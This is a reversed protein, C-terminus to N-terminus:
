DGEDYTILNGMIDKVGIIYEPFWEVTQSKLREIAEMEFFQTTLYYEDDLTMLLDDVGKGNLTVKFDYIVEDKVLIEICVKFDVKMKM